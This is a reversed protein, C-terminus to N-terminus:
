EYEEEENDIQLRDAPFEVVARDIRVIVGRPLLKLARTTQDEDVNRWAQRRAWAKGHAEWAREAPRMIKSEHVFRGFNPADEVHLIAGAAYLGVLRLEQTLAFGVLPYVEFFPDVETWMVACWGNSPVLMEYEQSFTSM